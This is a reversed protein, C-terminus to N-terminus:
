SEPCARKLGKCESIQLGLCGKIDQANLPLSFSSRRWRRSQITLPVDLKGQDVHLSAAVNLPPDLLSFCVYDLSLKFSSEDTSTLRVRLLVFYVGKRLLKIPSRFSTWECDDQMPDRVLLVWWKGDEKWRSIAHREWAHVSFCECRVVESCCPCTVARNKCDFDMHQLLGVKGALLTGCEFSCLRRVSRLAKEAFLCIPYQALSEPTKCVPCLVRGGLRRLSQLCEGCLLHGHKCQRVAGAVTALDEFCVPCILESGEIMMVDADLPAARFLSATPLWSLIDNRKEVPLVARLKVVLSTRDDVTMSSAVSGVFDLMDPHAQLVACIVDHDTSLPAQLGGYISVDGKVAAAAIDPRCGLRAPLAHYVSADFKMAAVALDAAFSDNERGRGITEFFKSLGRAAQSLTVGDQAVKSLHSKLLFPDTSVAELLEDRWCVRWGDKDVHFSGIAVCLEFGCRCAHAM